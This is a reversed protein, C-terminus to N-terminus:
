GAALLADAIEQQPLECIGLEIEGVDQPRIEVFLCELIRQYGEGAALSPKPPGSLLQFLHLTSLCRSSVMATRSGSNRHASNASGVRCKERRRAKMTSM